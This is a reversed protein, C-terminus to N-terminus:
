GLGLPGSTDNFGKNYLKVDGLMEEITQVLTKSRLRSRIYSERILAPSFQKCKDSGILLVAEETAREKAFFKLLSQRASSNPYDVKIKDDFRGPRNTINAAFNEPFNTTAIIMTPHTFTKEQNDLLSLLSSDSRMRTQDNEMGGLDECVLILKEVNHKEYAFSKIFSQVEDAELSSTHWVVVLTKGDNVYKRVAKNLASTKGNGAPGWLLVGRKPIEIGFEKYLPINSFFCDVVDEIDKTAVLEDLMADSVFSTPKLDFGSMTKIISYIGPSVDYVPFEKHDDQHYKLQVFYGDPTLTSYDSEELRAGTELESLKTKQQVTFHGM